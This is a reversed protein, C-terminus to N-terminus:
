VVLAKLNDLTRVASAYDRVSPEPKDLLTQLEQLGTLVGAPAQTEKLQAAFYDALKVTKAFEGIKEGKGAAGLNAIFRMSEVWEGFRLYLPNGEQTVFAEIFPRIVPLSARNIAALDVKNYIAAHLNLVAAVMEEGAGLYVLGQALADCASLVKEEDGARVSAELDALLVGLQFSGKDKSIGATFGYSSATTQGIFGAVTKADTAQTLAGVLIRSSPTMIYTKQSQNPDPPEKASLPAALTICLISFGLPKLKM